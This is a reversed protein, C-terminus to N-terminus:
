QVKRNEDQDMKWTEHSTFVSINEPVLPNEFGNGSAGM